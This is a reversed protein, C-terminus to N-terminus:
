RLISGFMKRANKAAQARFMAKAEIISGTKKLSKNAADIATIWKKGSTRKHSKKRFHKKMTRQRRTKM